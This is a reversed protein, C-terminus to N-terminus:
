RGIRERCLRLLAAAGQRAGGAALDRAIAAVRPRELAAFAEARARLARSDKAVAAALAALKERRPAAVLRGAQEVSRMAGPGGERALLAAAREPAFLAALAALAQGPGTSTRREGSTM